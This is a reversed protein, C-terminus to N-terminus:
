VCLLVIYCKKACIKLSWHFKGQDSNQCLLIEFWYKANPVRVQSSELLRDINKILGDALVESSRKEALWHLDWAKRQKEFNMMIVTPNKPQCFAGLRPSLYNKQYM